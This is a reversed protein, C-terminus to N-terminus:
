EPLHEPVPSVDRPGQKFFLQIKLRSLSDALFNNKSTVHQVFVRRHHVLNNLMLMRLLYICNACRSVGANVM